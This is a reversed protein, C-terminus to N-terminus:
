PVMCVVHPDGDDEKKAHAHSANKWSMCMMTSISWLDQYYTSQSLDCKQVSEEGEGGRM